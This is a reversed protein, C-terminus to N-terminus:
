ESPAAPNNAVLSRIERLKVKVQEASAKGMRIMIRQGSSRSELAPDAYRYLIKPQVLGIPEDLEPAALLDDITQVLRDNFYAGPKAIEAYARQFLPYYQRYVAVLKKSDVGQIRQLYAAYREANHPSITLSGNESQTLFASSVRKLPVVNAPLTSGPLHDVTAVLKRILSETLLVDVWSKDLVSNLAKLIASESEDLQPLPEPASEPELPHLVPSEAPQEAATPPAAPPMVPRPPPLVVVPEEPAPEPAPFLPLFGAVAASLAVFVVVGVTKKKM